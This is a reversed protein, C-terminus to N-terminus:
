CRRCLPIYANEDVLYQQKDKTIRHSFIAPNSCKVCKSKLKCIDDCYLILDLIQGMKKQQFDGDLGYIYIYKDKTLQELVFSKLDPFFQAENIFIYKSYLIKNPIEFFASHKIHDLDLDFVSQEDHLLQLNDRVNYISLTDFLHKCKICQLEINDHNKLLGKYCKNMNSTEFDLVIKSDRINEFDHILRSTKGSYMPGVIIHLM